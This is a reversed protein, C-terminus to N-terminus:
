PIELMAHRIVQIHPEHREAQWGHRAHRTFAFIPAAHDCRSPIFRPLGRFVLACLRCTNGHLMAAIASADGEDERGDGGDDDRLGSHIAPGQVIKRSAFGMM